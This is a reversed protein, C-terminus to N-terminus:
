GERRGQEGGVAQRGTDREGNVEAGELGKEEIGEWGVLACNNAVDGGGGFKEATM